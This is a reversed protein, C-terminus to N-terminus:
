KNCSTYSHLLLLMEKGLKGEWSNQKIRDLLIALFFKDTTLMPFCTPPGHHPRSQVTKNLVVYLALKGYVTNAQFCVSLLNKFTSAPM